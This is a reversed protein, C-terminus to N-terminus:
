RMGRLMDAIVRGLLVTAIPTFALMVWPVMEWPFGHQVFITM